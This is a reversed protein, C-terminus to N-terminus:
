PIPTDDIRRTSGTSSRWVLLSVTVAIFPLGPAGGQWLGYALAAVFGIAIVAIVALPRLGIRTLATAAAGGVLLDSVGVIPVLRGVIPVVLALYLLLDSSGEQYQEIITRSFGTSISLVDVVAATVLFAVVAGSSSLSGGILVAGGVAGLLVALDIIPWASPRLIIIAIYVLLLVVAILKTRLPALKPIRYAAWVVVALGVATVISALLFFLPRSM